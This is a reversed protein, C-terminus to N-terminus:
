CLATVGAVKHVSITKVLKQISKMKPVLKNAQVSISLVVYYLITIKQHLVKNLFVGFM